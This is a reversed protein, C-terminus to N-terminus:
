KTLQLFNLGGLYYRQHVEKVRFGVSQVQKIMDDMDVFLARPNDCFDLNMRQFEPYYPHAILEKDLTTLLRKMNLSRNPTAFVFLSGPQMIAYIWALVTQPNDWAYYSNISLCSDVPHNIVSHEIKAHIIESPKGPFQELMWRARDVMEKSYDVGTYHTVQPQELVFPAIKASGCGCDLVHGRMMSAVAQNLEFMVSPMVSQHALAYANWEQQSYINQNM